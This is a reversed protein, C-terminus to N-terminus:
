HGCYHLGYLGATGAGDQVAVCQNLGPVNKDLALQTNRIENHCDSDSFLRMHLVNTAGAFLFFM